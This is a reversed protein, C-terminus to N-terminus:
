KCIFSSESTEPIPEDDSPSFGGDAQQPFLHGTAGTEVLRPLVALLVATPVPRSSLGEDGRQSCGQAQPASRPSCGEVLMAAAAPSALVADDHLHAASGLATPAPAAGDTAESTPHLQAPSGDAAPAPHTEVTAADVEKSSPSGDRGLSVDGDDSSSSVLNRRRAIAAGRHRPLPEGSATRQRQSSAEDSPDPSARQQRGTPGLRDHRKVHSGWADRDEEAAIETPAEWEDDGGQRMYSPDQSPEAVMECGGKIFLAGCQRVKRRRRGEGRGDGPLYRSVPNSRRKLNKPEIVTPNVPNESRKKDVGFFYLAERATIQAKSVNLDRKTEAVGAADLGDGRLKAELDAKQVELQNLRERRAAHGDGDEPPGRRRSPGSRREPMGQGTGACGRDDPAERTLVTGNPARQEASPGGDAVVGSPGGGCEADDADEEANDIIISRRKRKQCAPQPSSSDPSRHVGSPLSSIGTVRRPVMLIGSGTKATPGCRHAAEVLQRDGHAQRGGSNNGLGDGSGRNDVEIVEREKQRAKEIVELAQVHPKNKALQAQRPGEPKM